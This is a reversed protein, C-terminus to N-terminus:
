NGCIINLQQQGESESKSGSVIIKEIIDFWGKGILRDICKKQLLKIIEAGTYNTYM